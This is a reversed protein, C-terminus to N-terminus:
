SIDKICVVMIGSPRLESGRVVFEVVKLRCQRLLVSVGEPSFRWYDGYTRKRHLPVWFPVTLILIGKSLLVRCAENLVLIPSEVHELVEILLVGEYHNAGLEHLDHADMIIDPRLSEDIDLTYYPILHTSCVEPESPRYGAGIDLVPGAKIWRATSKKVFARIAKRKGTTAPYKSILEKIRYERECDSPGLGM